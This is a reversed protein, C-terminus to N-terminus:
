YDLGECFRLLREWSVIVLLPSGTTLEWWTEAYESTKFMYVIPNGVEDIM